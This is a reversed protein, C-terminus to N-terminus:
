IHSGCLFKLLQNLPKVRPSKVTSGNMPCFRLHLGLIYFLGLQSQKPFARPIGGLM